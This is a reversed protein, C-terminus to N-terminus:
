TRIHGQIRCKSCTPPARKQAVLPELTFTSPGGVLDELQKNKLSILDRAEQVQLGAIPSIQQKSRGKKQQQIQSETHLNNLEKLTMATNYIAIKCGKILKDLAQKSPSFSTQCGRALMKKVSSAKKHLQRVTYPTALTSSSTSAGGRSGPPTPTHVTYNLKDLVQSPDHPQIGAARFSSQINEISFVQQRAMPYAKLFDLKNIHNYGLWM